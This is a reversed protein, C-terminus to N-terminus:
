AIGANAANDSVTDTIIRSRGTSPDTRLIRTDLIWPPLHGTGALEDDRGVEGDLQAKMVFAIETEIRPQIFRGPPVTAGSAFVMNDSLVGSDPTDIGLAQQM